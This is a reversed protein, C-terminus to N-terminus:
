LKLWPHEKLNERKQDNYDWVLEEGIKIERNAVFYLVPKPDISKYKNIDILLKFKLTCNNNSRSHNLLRGLRGDEATADVAGYQGCDVMFSGLGEREYRDNRIKMQKTSILEGTM